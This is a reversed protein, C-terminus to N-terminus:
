AYRARVASISEAVVEDISPSVDVVAGVEDPQLPELTDFQSQLLSTPMFHRERSRMREELVEFPAHLLLFFTESAPVAARLIDRYSRRLASCTLVTSVGEAHREAVLDGIAKLWPLRDADTLPTGQSMKRLNGEPHHDDGEIFEVGLDDALRRAVTSKGTSSVGMVVVHFLHRSPEHDLASM